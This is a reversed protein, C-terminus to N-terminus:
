NGLKFNIHVILEPSLFMAEKTVILLPTLQTLSSRPKALSVEMSSSYGVDM